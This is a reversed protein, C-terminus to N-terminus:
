PQVPVLRQQSLCQWLDVRCYSVVCALYTFYLSIYLVEEDGIDDMSGRMM